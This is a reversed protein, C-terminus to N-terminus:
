TFYIECFNSSGATTWGATFLVSGSFSFVVRLLAPQRSHQSSFGAPLQLPQLHTLFQATVASIFVQAIIVLSALRWNPFTCFFNFNFLPLQFFVLCIIFHCPFVAHHRYRSLWGLPFTAPVQLFHLIKWIFHRHFFNFYTQIACWIIIEWVKLVCFRRLFCPRENFGYKTLLQKM